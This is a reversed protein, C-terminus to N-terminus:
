VTLYALSTGAIHKVDKFRPDNSYYANLVKTVGKWVGYDHWLIVGGNRVLKFAIETDNKAYPASHSGDVFMIDIKGDYPSFDFTASDGYLQAIKANESSYKKLREGVVDKNVYKSDGDEIGFKSDAMDKKPLDLTYVHAGQPSSHALNVTTRGDFTGIEFIDMARRNKVIQSLVTLEDMSVNGDSKEKEILEVDLCPLLDARDVLPIITRNRKIGVSLLAKYAVTRIDM